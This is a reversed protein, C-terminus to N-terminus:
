ILLGPLIANKVVMKFATADVATDYFGAFDYQQIIGKPGDIVPSKPTLTLEPIVVQLSENDATGDGTGRKFTLDLSTKTQNKAKAYLTTDFFMATLAGGIKYVGPNIASRSGAGGLVFTDGDLANDYSFSSMKVTAIASGGEKMDAAALMLADFKKIGNDVPTGTDFSSTGYTEGGGLWKSACDIMGSPNVAFDLGGCVCGAYKYYQAIDAFGKELAYSPLPGGGKLTHILSTGAVTVKKITGTGLTFTSSTGLPIHIKFTNATPADFVAYVCGNLSTPATLGQIEVTDGPLLGHATVTVTMVCNVTDIVATPATLAAAMTGGTMTSQMSGLAAFYQLANAHLEFNIDGAVDTNDRVRQVPQRSGRITVSDAFGQSFLLSEKSFYIKRSRIGTPLVKFSAERQAIIQAQAGQAQPM